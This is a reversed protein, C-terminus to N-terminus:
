AVCDDMYGFECAVLIYAHKDAKAFCFLSLLFLHYSMRRDSAQSNFQVKLSASEFVLIRIKARPQCTM